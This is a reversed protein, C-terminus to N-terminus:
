IYVYMYIYIYIYNIRPNSQLKVSLLKQLGKFSLLLGQIGGRQDSIWVLFWPTARFNYNTFHFYPWIGMRTIYCPTPTWWVDQLLHRVIEWSLQNHSIAASRHHGRKDQGRRSDFIETCMYAHHMYIHTCICCCSLTGRHLVEGGCPTITAVHTWKLLTHCCMPNTANKNFLRMLEIWMIEIQPDRIGSANSIRVEFYFARQFRFDHPTQFFRRFCVTHFVLSSALVNCMTMDTGVSHTYIYIYMYTSHTYTHICMHTYIYIYIYVNM